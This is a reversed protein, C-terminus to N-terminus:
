RDLAVLHHLRGRPSEVVAFGLGPELQGARLWDSACNQSEGPPSGGAGAQPSAGFGEKKRFYLPDPADGRNPKPSLGAAAAIEDLRARLRAAADCPRAAIRGAAVARALPGTQPRRGPLVPRAAFAEGDRDLAALVQEDDAATLPDPPAPEVAGLGAADALLRAAWSGAPPDAPGFGLRELARAPAAGALAARAAPMEDPGPPVRAAFDILCARLLEGLREAALRGPPPLPPERGAAAALAAAAASQQSLACLGHLRGIAVPVADLPLRALLPTLARRRDCAVTVADIRGAALTAAIRIRGPDPLGTM